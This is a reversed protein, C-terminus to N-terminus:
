SMAKLRPPAGEACDHVVAGFAEFLPWSVPAESAGWEPHWQLGPSFGPVGEVYIAEPTDDPTYGDIVIRSGPVKIGQGHLTNTLVETVKVIHCLEFKGELTGNPLM